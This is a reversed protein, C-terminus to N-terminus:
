DAKEAKLVKDYKKGNYTGCSKCIHHALVPEGCVSCRSIPPNSLKWHTRRKRGRTRSNRRKPLAAM